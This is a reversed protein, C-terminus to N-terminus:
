LFILANLTTLVTYQCRIHYICAVKISFYETQGLQRRACLKDLVSLTRLNQNTLINPQKVPVRVNM